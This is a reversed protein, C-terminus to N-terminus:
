LNRWCAGFAFIKSGSKRERHQDPSRRRHFLKRASVVRHGAAHDRGAAAANTGRERHHNRTEHGQEDAATQSGESKEGEPEVGTVFFCVMTMVNSGYVCGNNISLETQNLAPRSIVPQVNVM